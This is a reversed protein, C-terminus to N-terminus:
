IALNTKEWDVLWDIVEQQLTQSYRHLVFDTRVHITSYTWRNTAKMVQDIGQRWSHTSNIHTCSTPQSRCSALPALSSLQPTHPPSPEVHRSTRPCAMGWRVDSCHLYRVALKVSIQSWNMREDENVGTGGELKQPGLKDKISLVSTKLDWNCEEGVGSKYFADGVFLEAWSSGM